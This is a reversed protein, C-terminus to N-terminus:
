SIAAALSSMLAAVRSDLQSLTLSDGISYFSIRSTAYFAATGGNNAAFVYINQSTSTGLAQTITLNSGGARAIYSASSSRALGMFSTSGLALSPGSNETDINPSSVFETITGTSKIIGKAGISNGLNRAAMNWGSQMSGYISLHHNDQADASCSRNTNLYKNSGNGVLGTKRDYDTAGVFNNNTPAGGVLPVLAGALTRAGALICSAKIASWIGDAKCGVVFANIADKVATELGGSQGAATDAAEVATIYTQADTDYTVAAAFRGSDIWIVSM